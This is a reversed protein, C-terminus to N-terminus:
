RAKVFRVRHNKQDFTIVFERLLSSGINIEDYVDTFTITPQPFQYGGITLTDQLRVQKLEFEGSVSGGKGVLIPYSALPLRTVLSAPLDIARINGSDLM